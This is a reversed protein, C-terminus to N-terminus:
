SRRAGRKAVDEADANKLPFDRMTKEQAEETDLTAVLKEIANFNAESSLIVLSNARSNSSVEVIDKLSKGSMKQYLPGIDKVLDEASVNKLPLVRISVDQPKETDLLDVLRKIEPLKSKPAAVILRNSTKDPWIRVQQGSTQAGAGPTPPGGSPPEPSTM